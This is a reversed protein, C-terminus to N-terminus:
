AMMRVMRSWPGKQPVPRRINASAGRGIVEQEQLAARAAQRLRQRGRRVHDDPLRGDAGATSLPRLQEISERVEPWRDEPYGAEEFPKWVDELFLKVFERAVSRCRDQVKAIVALAHDLPVGQQIVGEAADLLSPTRAEYPGDDVPVLM